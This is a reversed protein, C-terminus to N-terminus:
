PPLDPHNVEDASWSDSISRVYQLVEIIKHNIIQPSLKM